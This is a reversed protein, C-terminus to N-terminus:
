AMGSEPMEGGSGTVPPEPAQAAGGNPKGRTGGHGRGKGSGRMWRILWVVLLIPVAIKILLIGTSVVWFVIMMMLGAAAAVLLMPLGVVMLVIILPVALIGLVLLVPWGLAKLLLAIPLLWALAGFSKLLLKFLAVRALIWKVLAIM